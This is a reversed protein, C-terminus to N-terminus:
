CRYRLAEGEGEVCGIGQSALQQFFGRIKETSIQTTRLIHIGSRAQRATIWEGRRHAFCAIARLEKPLGELAAIDPDRPEDGPEDVASGLEVDAPKVEYLRELIEATLQFPNAEEAQPQSQVPPAAPTTATQSEGKDTAIAVMPYQQQLTPLHLWDPLTIITESHGPRTMRVSASRTQEGWPTEGYQRTLQIASSDILDKMGKINSFGASVTRAHNILIPAIGHKDSESLATRVLSQGLEEHGNSYQTLEDIVLSQRDGGLRLNEVLDSYFAQIADFDGGSGVVVGAFLKQGDVHPTVAVTPWGLLYSRLYAIASALSSKGTQQPGSVVLLKCMLAYRLEPCDAMLRNWLAWQQSNWQASVPPAAITDVPVAAVDVAQPTAVALVPADEVPPLQALVRRQQENLYRELRGNEIDDFAKEGQRVRDIMYWGGVLGVAIALPPSAMVSLCYGAGALTAVLPVMLGGHYEQLVRDGAQQVLASRPDINSEAIQQIARIDSFNM